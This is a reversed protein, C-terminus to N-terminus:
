MIPDDSLITACQTGGPEHPANITEEKVSNGNQRIRCAMPETQLIYLTSRCPM